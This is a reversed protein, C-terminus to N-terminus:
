INPLATGGQRLKTACTNANGSYAINTDDGLFVGINARYLSNGSVATNNSGSLNICRDALSRGDIANGSITSVPCDILSIGFQGEAQIRVRNGTVSSSPFGSMKIGTGNSTFIVNGTVSIGTYNASTVGGSSAEIGRACFYVNNGTCVFHGSGTWGANMMMLIAVGGAMRIDNGIITSTVGRITLPQIFIGHRVVNEVICGSVTTSGGQLVFGDVASGKVHCGTFTIFEGAPHVDFGAEDLQSGVCGQVSIRRPIGSSSTGGGVTVLHRLKRGFCNTISVDQTSYLIAIGYGFGARLADNFSCSLFDVAICDSIYVGGQTLNDTTINQFRINYMGTFYFGVTGRASDSPGKIILNRFSVDEAMVMRTAVPADAMRYNSSLPDELTITTGSISAVRGIEGEKQNTSGFVKNSSIKLFDGASLGSISASLVVTSSDALADSSLNVPASTTGGGKFSGGDSTNSLDLIAGPEGEFTTGSPVTITGTPKHTGNLLRIPYKGAAADIAEQISDGPKVPQIEPRRAIDSIAKTVSAMSGYLSDLMKRTLSSTQSIYSATTGDEPTSPGAGDRSNIADVQIALQELKSNMQYVSYFFDRAM